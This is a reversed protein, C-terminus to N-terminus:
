LRRKPAAKKKAEVVPTTMHYWMQFGGIKAPKSTL